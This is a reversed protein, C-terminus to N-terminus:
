QIPVKTVTRLTVNVIGLIMAGWAILQPNQQIVSSDVVATFAAAVVILANVWFTKSKTIPKSM